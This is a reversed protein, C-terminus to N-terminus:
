FRKKVDRTEEKKNTRELPSSKLRRSWWQCMTITSDIFTPVRTKKDNKKERRKKKRKKTQKRRKVRVPPLRGNVGRVGV